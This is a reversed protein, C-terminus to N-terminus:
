EFVIELLKAANPHLTVLILVYRIGSQQQKNVYEMQLMQFVLRSHDYLGNRIAKTPAM